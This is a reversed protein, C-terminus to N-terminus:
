EAIQMALALAGLGGAKSGLAPPVIFSDIHELIVPHHVYGNLLKLTQRRILPFLQSQQMVGGGLIIRQPSFSCIMSHMAQAITEAEITWAPHDPPLTEAPQGWRKLMAPGSALGEFCGRHYPCVGEFSDKQPLLIHGMEPHVLGHMPKGDIIAGGGVGTGITFYLFNELGQAAGWAAEALAAANVDTDLAVPVALAESLTPLLPTNRWGSKPTSTIYGYTPSLSNLDLPGFAGIGLSTLPYGLQRTQTRFFDISKQLTEEPTTTPFRAEALIHDPDSAVLCVFKTGGAEIGGYM